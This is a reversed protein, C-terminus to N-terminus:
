SGGRDPSHLHHPCNRVHQRLRNAHNGANKPTSWVSYRCADPGQHTCIVEGWRHGGPTPVVSWGQDEAFRLAREVDKKPHRTRRTMRDAHDWGKSAAARIPSSGRGLVQHVLDPLGVSRRLPRFHIGPLSHNDPSSLLATLAPRLGGSPSAKVARDAVAPCHDLFGTLAEQPRMRRRVLRM